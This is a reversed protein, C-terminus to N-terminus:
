TMNSLNTTVFYIIFSKYQVFFNIKRKPLKKGKLFIFNIVLAASEINSTIVSMKAGYVVYRAEGRM